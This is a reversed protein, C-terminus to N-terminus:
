NAAHFTLGDVRTEIEAMVARYADSDVAGFRRKFEDETMGSPLGGVDPFVQGEQKMRDLLRAPVPAGPRDTSLTAAFRIGALDAAIDDFSFGSGGKNSDLLEKFEGIMFAMGFDSAVKLVASVIFHQRLDGRGGLTTTGCRSKERRLNDPVVKGALFELRGIGCYIGLALFASRIERAGEGSDGAAAQQRARDFAFHLYPMFSGRSPLRGAVAAEHMALYYARVEAADGFSLAQRLRAKSRAFLAERTDASINLGISIREGRVSIREMGNFALSGLHDGLATNMAFTALWVVFRPPLDIGGLRLATINLGTDSPAITLSLNLWGDGPLRPPQVSVAMKIATPAVNVQARFGPLARAAFLIVSDIEAESLSIDPQGATTSFAKSFRSLVRKALEADMSEVTAGKEVAPRPELAAFVFVVPAGVLALLFVVILFFRM